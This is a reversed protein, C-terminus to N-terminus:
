ETPLGTEPARALLAELPLGRREAHRRAWRHLGEVHVVEGRLAVALRRRWEWDLRIREAELFERLRHALHGGEADWDTLLIVRRHGAVLAQATESLTRGRHVAVIPGPWGLRSISRRDREGEVVVVTGPATGEAVFRPWLELFADFAEEGPGEPAM